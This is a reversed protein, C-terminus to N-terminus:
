MRTPTPTRVVALKTSRRASRSMKVWDLWSARDADPAPVAVWVPARKTADPAGGDAGGGKTGAAPAGSRRTRKRALLASMTPATRTAPAKM